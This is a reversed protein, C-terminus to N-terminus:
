HRPAGVADFVGEADTVEVAADSGPVGDLSLSFSTLTGSVPATFVEGYTQSDPSGFPFLSIDGDSNSITTAAQAAGGVLTLGLLGAGLVTAATKM